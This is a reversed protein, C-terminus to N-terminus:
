DRWYGCNKCLINPDFEDATETIIAGTLEKSGCKPCLSDKLGIPLECLRKITIKIDPNDCRIKELVM